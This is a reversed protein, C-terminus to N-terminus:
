ARSASATCARSPTAACTPRSRMRACPACTARTAGGTRELPPAGAVAPTKRAPPAGGRSRGGMWARRGWCGRRSCNRTRATRRPPPTTTMTTPTGGGGWKPRRRRTAATRCTETAPFCGSMRPPSLPFFPPRTLIPPNGADILAWSNGRGGRRVFDQGGAPRPLPPLFPDAVLPPRPGDKPDRGRKKGRRGGELRVPTPPGVADGLYPPRSRGVGRSAHSYPPGAYSDSPVVGGLVAVGTGTHKNHPRTETYSDPPDWPSGPGQTQTLPAM